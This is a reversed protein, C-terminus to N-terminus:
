DAKVANAAKVFQKVDENALSLTESYKNQADTSAVKASSLIKTKMRKMKAQTIKTEAAAMADAKALAQIKLAEIESISHVKIAKAIAIVEKSKALAITKIKVDEADSIAKEKDDSIRQIKSLEQANEHNIFPIEQKEISKTDSPNKQIDTSEQASLAYFMQSLILSIAITKKM